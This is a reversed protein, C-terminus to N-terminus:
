SFGVLGWHHGTRFLDRVHPIPLAVSGTSEAIRHWLGLRLCSHFLILHHTWLRLSQFLTLGSKEIPQFWSHTGLGLMFILIPTPPCSDMLLRLFALPSLHLGMHCETFYALLGHARLAGGPALQTPTDKHAVQAGVWPSDYDYSTFLAHHLHFHLNLPGQGKIREARGYLIHAFLNGEVVVEIEVEVEAEAEVEAEVEDGVEVEVEFHLEVEDEVEVKVEVEVQIEIM